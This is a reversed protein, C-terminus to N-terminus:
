NLCNLTHKFILGRGTVEFDNPFLHAVCAGTIHIYKGHTLLLIKNYIIYIHIIYIIETQDGPGVCHFSLALEQLSNESRWVHAWM